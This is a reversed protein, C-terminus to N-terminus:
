KREPKRNKCSSVRPLSVLKGGWPEPSFDHFYKFNTVPILSLLLAPEWCTLNESQQAAKQGLHSGQDALAAAWGLPVRRQVEAKAAPTASPGSTFDLSM